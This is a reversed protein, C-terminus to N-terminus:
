LDSLKKMQKDLKKAEKFLKELEKTDLKLNANCKPCVVEKDSLSIKLKNGCNPCEIEFSLKKLEDELGITIM